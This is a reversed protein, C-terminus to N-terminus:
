AKALTFKMYSKQTHIHLHSPTCVSAQMCLDSSVQLTPQRRDTM